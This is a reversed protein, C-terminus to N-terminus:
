SSRYITQKGVDAELGSADLLGFPLSICFDDLKAVTVSERNQGRGEILLMQM